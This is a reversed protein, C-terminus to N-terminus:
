CRRRVRRIPMDHELGFGTGNFPRGNILLTTLPSSSLNAFTVEPFAMVRATYKSTGDYGWGVIRTSQDKGAGDLLTLVCGNFFGATQFQGLQGPSTIATIPTTYPPITITSTSADFVLDIFQGNATM